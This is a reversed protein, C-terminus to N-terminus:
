HDSIFDSIDKYPLFCALPQQCYKKQLGNRKKNLTKIDVHVLRVDKVTSSPDRMKCRERCHTKLCKSETNAYIQRRKKFSILFAKIILFMHLCMSNQRLPNDVFPVFCHM